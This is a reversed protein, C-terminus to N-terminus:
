NLSMWNPRRFSMSAISLLRTLCYSISFSRSSSRSCTCSCAFLFLISWPLLGVDHRIHLGHVLVVVILSYRISSTCVYLVFRCFIGHSSRQSVSPPRLLNPAFVIAINQLTMKSTDGEGVIEGFLRRLCKYIRQNVEPLQHPLPTVHTLTYTHVHITPRCNPTLHKCTRM